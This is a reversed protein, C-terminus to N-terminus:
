PKSPVRYQTSPVAKESITEIEDLVTAAEEELGNRMSLFDGEPYKGAKYEFSLDRLNEYIQEKREHLYALRSKHPAAADDQRSYFVYVILGAALAVGALLGTM